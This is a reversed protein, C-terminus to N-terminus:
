QLFRRHTIYVILAGLLLVALSLGVGAWRWRKELHWAVAALGAAYLITVGALWWPNVGWVSLTALLTPGIAGLLVTLKILSRM